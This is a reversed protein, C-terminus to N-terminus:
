GRQSFPVRRIGPFGCFFVTQQAQGIDVCVFVVVSEKRDASPLVIQIDNSNPIQGRMKVIKVSLEPGKILFFDTIKGLKKGPHLRINLSDSVFPDIRSKKPIKQL